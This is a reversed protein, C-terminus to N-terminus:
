IKESRKDPFWQAQFPDNLILGFSICCRWFPSQRWQFLTDKNAAINAFIDSNKFVRADHVARPLGLYCDTFMMKDNCIGQLIVSHFGKRNIYNAPCFNPAKIPIHYGDIAGLARPFGKM